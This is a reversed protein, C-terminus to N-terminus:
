KRVPQPPVPTPVRCPLRNLTTRNKCIPTPPMTSGSGMAELGLFTVVVMLLVLTVKKM